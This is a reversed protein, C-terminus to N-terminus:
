EGPASREIRRGGARGLEAHRQAVLAAGVAAADPRIRDLSPRALRAALLAAYLSRLPESGGVAVAADTTPDLLPHRCLSEVDDAVVAGILFAARQDATWDRTLAAVRVLFAVRGLGERRALRVGCAL